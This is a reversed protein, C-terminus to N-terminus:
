VSRRAGRKEVPYMAELVLFNTRFLRNLNWWSVGALGFEGVLAYKARLSRADEFWVEHLAGDDDRYRFFPAMATQDFDIAARERGALATAGTNTIARAASGQRFPLTWDYGYNPVGLLIKERPIRDVAYSLVRRVQTLPAVAMPPGYTYGWEYTMLVTYDASMGHAAYDHASYLLGQQSDSTKPALATMLYYGKRHLRDALLRLFQNFSERDFPYVYEFDLGVGTWRGAALIAFLNELFAAQASEDTLVAHAAASDFGGRARLNTVTLMGETGAPIGGEPLDYDRSLTGEADTRFSFPSLFTLYPASEGLTAATVASVYGNTVVAKGAPAGAGIPIVLAQGVCLIGPDNLQNVEAIESVGVGFRRSLASLTDGKKVVYIEM